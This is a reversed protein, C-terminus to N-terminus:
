PLPIADPLTSQDQNLNNTILIADLLVGDERKAIELTHDGGPLLWNTIAQSHDDSHVEDWAWGSLADMGNFRVWGAGPQDPDEHTQRIANPIRVWFSDAGAEQGRLLIKYEGGAPVNFSYTAVWEAGPVFDNDNGDGDDSGISKGGSAAPDDYTRWSSGITDAAEAELWVEVLPAPEPSLGFDDFYMIGSGGAQGPAANRDGVGISISDVDTLNVGQDAFQQLDIRWETWTDIQTVALDDHAVLGSTGNANAIAVYMQEASNNLIGIDQSQWQGTVTGTTQVGSFGAEGTVDPDHSTLALGIYVDSDMSISPRWVMPTWATGNSSYSGRFNGSVDREIKVWFPATVAMQEATAVSTDSSAGGDTDTRGQFRAGNTPTGDANTPMVYVAAFKSGADLTERIMVGGKAWNDTHEVHEVKAIITGAGSLQKYVYHFEDAQNWIDAGSATITFAGAPGETFSGVSGPYGRFWLSLQKVGRVTWDRQSSLTLVAESNGASNDYSFPMSQKGGHVITQETYPPLDYGVLAGNTPIGFGDIWSEFIRNSEPDPPDIDNYSEIDDVVLSEITSFGWVEGTWLAPTEVDNGEDVRWFYTKDLDLSVPGHSAETVTAVLATGDAVAQYDDSFYVDHTAAERGARFALDLDLAVDTAWAAPDPERAQVPISFFQVESLGFQPLLGAWNSNATLKVYRAAVGAMDITTNSAYGASGPGQAFEHTAGLAMFDVGNTSYEVTVEKFGLGIVSELSENSNWVLMEDLKHVTDFEFMIWTPQPGAADSLWMTGEGTNGHLGSGDLGAGSVTNEPGKDAASSSATAIINEVQY